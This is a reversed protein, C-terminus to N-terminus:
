RTKSPLESIFLYMFQLFISAQRNHHQINKILILGWGSGHTDQETRRM